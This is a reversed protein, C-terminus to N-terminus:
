LREQCKSEFNKVGRRQAYNPDGNAEHVEADKGFSFETAPDPARDDEIKNNDNRKGNGDKELASRQIVKAGLPLTLM